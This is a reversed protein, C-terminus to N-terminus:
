HCEDDAFADEGTARMKRALGTAAELLRPHKTLTTDRFESLFRRVVVGATYTMGLRSAAPVPLGPRDLVEVDILRGPDAQLELLLFDKKFSFPVSVGDVLVASIASSDPEYKVLFFDTRTARRNELKFKRTFFQVDVSRESVSRM